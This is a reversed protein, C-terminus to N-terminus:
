QEEGEATDEKADNSYRQATEILKLEDISAQMDWIHAIRRANEMAEKTLASQLIDRSNEATIPTDDSAKEKNTKYMNTRLTLAYAYMRSLNERRVDDLRNRTEIFTKNQDTDTYQPLMEKEVAGELESMNGVNESVSDLLKVEVKKNNPISSSVEELPGFDGQRVANIQAQIQKLEEQVNQAEKQVDELKGLTTELIEFDAYASGGAFFMLVFTGILFKKM